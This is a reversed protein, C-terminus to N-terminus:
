KDRDLSLFASAIISLVFILFTEKDKISVGTYLQFIYWCIRLGVYRAINLKM